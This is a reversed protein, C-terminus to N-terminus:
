MAHQTIARQAEEHMKAELSQVKAAFEDFEKQVDMSAKLNSTALEQATHLKQACGSHAAELSKLRKYENEVIECAMLSAQLAHFTHGAADDLIVDLTGSSHAEVTQPLLLDGMLFAFEAPKSYTSYGHTVFPAYAESKSTSAPVNTKLKKADTNINPSLLFFTKSSETETSKEERARKSFLERSSIILPKIIPPKFEKAYIHSSSMEIGKDGKPSELTKSSLSQVSHSSKTLPTNITVKSRTRNAASKIIPREVVGTTKVKKMKNIFDEVDVTGSNRIPRNLCKPWLMDEVPLEMVKEVIAKTSTNSEDFEFHPESFYLIVRGFSM